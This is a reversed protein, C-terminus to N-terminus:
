STDLHGYCDEILGACLAFSFNRIRKGAHPHFTKLRRRFGLPDKLPIDLALHTQFFHAAGDVLKEVPL